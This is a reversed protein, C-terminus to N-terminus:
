RTPDAQEVNQLRSDAFPEITPHFKFTASSGCPRRLM